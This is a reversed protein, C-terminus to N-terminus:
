CDVTLVFPSLLYLVSVFVEDIMKKEQCKNWKMVTERKDIGINLEREIMMIVNRGM